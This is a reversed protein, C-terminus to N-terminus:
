SYRGAEISMVVRTVEQSAEPSRACAMRTKLACTASLYPRNRTHSMRVPHIERGCRVCNTTIGLFEQMLEPGAKKEDVWLRTPHNIGKTDVIVHRRLTPWLPHTRITQADEFEAFM